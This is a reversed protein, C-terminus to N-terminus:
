LQASATLLMRTQAPGPNGASTLTQRRMAMPLPLSSTGCLRVTYAPSLELRRQLRRQGICRLSHRTFRARVGCGFVCIRAHKHQALLQGSLSSLSLPRSLSLSTSLSFPPFLSACVCVCVSVCVCLHMPIRFFISSVGLQTLQHVSDEIDAQTAQGHRSICGRSCCTNVRYASFRGEVVYHLATRRPAIFTPPPPPSPPPLHVWLM